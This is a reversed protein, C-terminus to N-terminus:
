QNIHLTYVITAIYVTYAYFPGQRAPFMEVRGLCVPM